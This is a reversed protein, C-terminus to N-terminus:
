EGKNLEVFSKIQNDIRDSLENLSNIVSEPINVGNAMSNVENLVHGLEYLVKEKLLVELRNVMVAQAAITFDCEHIIETIKEKM